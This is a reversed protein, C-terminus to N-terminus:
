IYNYMKAYVIMVITAFVLTLTYIMNLEFYTYYINVIKNSLGLLKNKIMSVLNYFDISMGHTNINEKQFYM